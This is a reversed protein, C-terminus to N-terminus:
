NPVLAYTLLLFFLNLTDMIEIITGLNHPDITCKVLEGTASHM